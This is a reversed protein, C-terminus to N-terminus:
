GHNAGTRKQRSYDEALNVVEFKGFRAIRLMSATGRGGPFALVLDPMLLLMTANRVPGAGKGYKKWLAKCECPQIGEQQAWLDAYSDAGKQGGHILVSFRYHMRLLSLWRWVYACDHFDRGGTVLLRQVPKTPMVIGNFSHM